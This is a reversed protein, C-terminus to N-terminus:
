APPIFSPDLNYKELVGLWAPDNKMQTIIRNLETGLQTDESSYMLRRIIHEHPKEAVYYLTPNEGHSVKYQLTSQSIVTFDGRGLRLMDLVNDEHMTDVRILISNKEAQELGVYRYGQVGIFTKGVLNDLNNSVFPSAALSVFIDNEQLVGQTFKVRTGLHKFWVPQVGVVVHAFSQQLMADIRRRPMFETRFSFQKSYRNLYNALDFYLGQQQNADVIYPAKFHYTLLLVEQKPAALLPLSCLLCCMLVAYLCRYNPM